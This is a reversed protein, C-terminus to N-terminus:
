RSAAAAAPPGSGRRAARSCGTASARPASATVDRGGSRPTDLLLDAASRRPRTRRGPASTLPSPQPGRHRGTAARARRSRTRDHDAGSAGSAIQSRMPRRIAATSGRPLSTANWRDSPEVRSTKLRCPHRGTPGGGAPPWRRRATAQRSFHPMAWNASPNSSRPSQRTTGTAARGRRAAHADVVGTVYWRDAAFPIHSSRRSLPNTTVDCPASRSTTGSDPALREATSSTSRASTTSATASLSPANRTDHESPM